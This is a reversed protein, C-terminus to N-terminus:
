KKLDDIGGIMYFASEPYDNVKDQLILECGDL